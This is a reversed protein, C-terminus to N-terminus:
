KVIDSIKRQIELIEKKAENFGKADKKNFAKELKGLIIDSNDVLQALVQLENLDIM